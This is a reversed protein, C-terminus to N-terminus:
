IVFEGKEVKDIVWKYWIDIYRTHQKEFPNLAIAMANASDTFIPLACTQVGTM